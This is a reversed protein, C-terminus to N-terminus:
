QKPPNPNSLHTSVEGTWPSSLKESFTFTKPFSAGEDKLSSLRTFELVKIDVELSPPAGQHTATRSERVKLFAFYTSLLHRRSIAPKCRIRFNEQIARIEDRLSTRRPNKSFKRLM